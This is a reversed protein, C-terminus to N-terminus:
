CRSYTFFEYLDIAFCCALLGILLPYFIQIPIKEFFACLHYMFFHEVYSIMLSICTVVVTLHWRVGTLRAIMLIDIFLLHQNVHPSFPARPASNILIYIPAAGIPFLVEFILFSPFILHGGGVTVVAVNGVGGGRSQKLRGDVQDRYEHAWTIKLNWM